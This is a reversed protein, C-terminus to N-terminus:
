TGPKGLGLEAFEAGDRGGRERLGRRARRLLQLLRGADGAPDRGPRREQVQSRHDRPPSGTGAELDYTNFVVGIPTENLTAPAQIFDAESRLPVYQQAPLLRDAIANFPSDRWGPWSVFRALAEAYAPRFV